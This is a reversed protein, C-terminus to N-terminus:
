KARRAAALACEFRDSEALCGRSLASINHPSSAFAPSITHRMAKGLLAPDASRPDGVWCRRGFQQATLWQHYMPSKRNHLQDILLDAAQQQEASRQLLVILHEVPMSDGVLGRDFEARALPHVHGPLVTLRTEDIPQTIRSQVAPYQFTQGAAPSPLPGSALLAM